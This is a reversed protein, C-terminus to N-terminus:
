ANNKYLGFWLGTMRCINEAFSVDSLVELRPLAYRSHLCNPDIFGPVTSFALRFGLEKMSALERNSFDGNPYAFYSIEQDLWSELKQKSVLIEHRSTEDSCSPLIPHSHTHAGVTVCSLQSIEKVAAETMAEREIKFQKKLLEVLKERKANPAHKLDEVLHHVVGKEGGAKIYSWWYGGGQEVPETAVFITVPLSEQNAFSVINDINGIWGDDVTILVTKCPFPRIGNMMEELMEVSVFSFGRSKLWQICASFLPRSPDHFYISLIKQQSAIHNQLKRVRGSLILINAYVCALVNRATLKM